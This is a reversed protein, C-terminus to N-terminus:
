VLDYFIDASTTKGASRALTFFRSRLFRKAPEESRAERLLPGAECFGSRLDEEM